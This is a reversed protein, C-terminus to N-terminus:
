TIVKPLMNDNETMIVGGLVGNWLETAGFSDNLRAVGHTDASGPGAQKMPLHNLTGGRHRTCYVPATQRM